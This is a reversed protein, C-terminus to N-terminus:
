DYRSSIRGTIADLWGNEENRYPLIDEIITHSTPDSFNCTM